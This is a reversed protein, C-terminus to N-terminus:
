YQLIEYNDYLFQPIQYMLKINRDTCSKCKIDMGCEWLNRTM